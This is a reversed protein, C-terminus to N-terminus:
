ATTPVLPPPHPFPLPFHPTVELALSLSLRYSHVSTSIISTSTDEYGKTLHVLRLPRPRHGQAPRLPGGAVISLLTLLCITNHLGDYGVLITQATGSSLLSMRSAFVAFPLGRPRCGEREQNGAM